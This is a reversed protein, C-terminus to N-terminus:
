SIRVKSAWAPNIEEESDIDENFSKKRSTSNACNIGRDSQFCFKTPNDSTSGVWERRNSVNHCMM